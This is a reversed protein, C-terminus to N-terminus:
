SVASAFCRFREMERDSFPTCTGHPPPTLDMLRYKDRALPNFNLLEIEIDQRIGHVFSGINRINEEGSTYNPIMPIRVLIDVNAAALMKFNSKIVANERGTFEEHLSPDSIKMDVIFLDTVPLFQKLVDARAFLCTEIATHLKKAKCRKLVELNFRYQFLPDGGTVTIGGNSSEYFVTDQMLEEMVDEVTMERSDFTLAGTPCLEACIGCNDCATRDIVIRSEEDAAISLAKRPCEGICSRCRICRTAFHWLAIRNEWGEPNQCWVCRLPCGKTFLSSRIGPGDHVAFRKIDFVMGKM